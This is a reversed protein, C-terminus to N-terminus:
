PPSVRKASGVGSHRSITVYVVCGDSTRSWTYDGPRSSLDDPDFPSLGPWSYTRKIGSTTAKLIRRVQANFSKRAMIRLSWSTYAHFQVLFSHTHLRSSISLQCSSRDTCITSTYNMPYRVSNKYRVFYKFTQEVKLYQHSLGFSGYRGQM